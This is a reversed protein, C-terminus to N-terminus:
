ELVEIVRRKRVFKGFRGKFRTARITKDDVYHYNGGRPKNFLVLHYKFRHKRLWTETIAKHDDTRSTLFCIIHGQDFWQNITERAGPIEKAIKMKGPEGNLVNECIVGDIDIIYNKRGGSSFSPDLVDARTERRRM